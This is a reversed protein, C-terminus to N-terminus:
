AALKWSCAPPIGAVNTQYHFPQRKARTPGRTVGSQEQPGVSRMHLSWHMARLVCHMAQLGCLYSVLVRLYPVIGM